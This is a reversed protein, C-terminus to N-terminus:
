NDQCERLSTDLYNNIGDMQADKTMWLPPRRDDYSYTDYSSRVSPEPPTVPRFDDEYSYTDYSSRVSPETPTVLGTDDDHRWYRPRASDENVDERGMLSETVNDVWVTANGSVEKRVLRIMTPENTHNMTRSEISDMSDMFSETVDDDDDFWAFNPAGFGEAARPLALIVLFVLSLRAYTMSPASRLSRPFRDAVRRKLFLRVFTEQTRLFNFFFFALLPNAHHEGDHPPVHPEAHRKKETAVHWLRRCPTCDPSLFFSLSCLLIVVTRTRFNEGVVMFSDRMTKMM